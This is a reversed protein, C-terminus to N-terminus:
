WESHPLLNEKNDSKESTERINNNEAGSKTGM